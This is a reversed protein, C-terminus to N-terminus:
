QETWRESRIDDANADAITKADIRERAARFKTLLTSVSRVKGPNSQGEMAFLFHALFAQDLLERPIGALNEVEPFLAVFESLAESFFEEVKEHKAAELDGRELDERTPQPYPANWWILEPGDGHDEVLYDEFHVLDPYRGQIAALINM